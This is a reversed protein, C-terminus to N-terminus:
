GEFYFFFCWLFFVYSLCLFDTVTGSEAEASAIFTPTPLFLLPAEVEMGLAESEASREEEQEAREQLEWESVESRTDEEVAPVTKGVEMSALFDLVAWSCRQDAFLKHAKWWQRAKGMEKWVEKWLTRQEKRWRPCGKLLHERTQKPHPCWWCPATRWFKTWYLYKGTRCHGTKLQYFRQALRKASGAVTGDRRQSTPMRYKKKSTRGATCERAQGWKKESIERRINARSRPCVGEPWEVGPADSEDAALKAWRDAQENM